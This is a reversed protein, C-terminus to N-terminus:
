SLVPVERRPGGVWDSFTRTLDHRKPLLQAFEDQSLAQELSPIGEPFLSALKGHLRQESTPLGAQAFAKWFPRNTWYDTCAKFITRFWTELSVSGNQCIRQQRNERELWKKYPGFCWLDLPQLYSTMGPPVPLMFLGQLRGERIVGPSLHCSAADFVVIAQYQPFRIRFLQGLLTLLSVMHRASNWSSDERCLMVTSPVVSQLQQELTRSLRRKNCILIQPLYAQVGLVNSVLAVHTICGRADQPRIQVEAHFKRQILGPAAHFSYALATEDINIYVPQKTSSRELWAAHRWFLVAKACVDGVPKAAKMKGLRFAFSRRFRSSWARLGRADTTPVFSASQKRYEEAVQESSPAVGIANMNCVFNRAKRRAIWRQATKYIGQRSGSPDQLSAIDELSTKLYLEEVYRKKDEADAEEMQERAAKASIYELAVAPDGTLVYIALLVFVQRPNLGMNAERQKEARRTRSLSSIKRRLCAVDVRVVVANKALWPDEGIWTNTSIVLAIGYLWVSYCHEQCNSQALMCENLGAQFLQRNSLIMEENGEDFVICKHVQRQFGKLNPQRIGECSLVLTREAGWLRKAYETKGYQSPGVLVLFPFRARTGVTAFLQMWEVVAPVIRSPKWPMWSELLAKVAANRRAQQWAEHHQIEALYNRTGRGRATMLESKAVSDELKHRRWLNFITQLEVTFDRYAVYNTAVHVSGIKPAQCYYHGADLARTLYRGKGLVPQVHPQAGMFTWFGNENSLRHRRNSDTVALHFHVLNEPCRRRLSLEMKLTHRPWELKECAGLAMVKFQQWLWKYFASGSVLHVLVASPTTASMQMLEQAEPNRCGWRGHWTLMYGHVRSGGEHGDAPAPDGDHNGPASSAVIQLDLDSHQRWWALVVETSPFAPKGCAAPAVWHKYWEHRLMESTSSAFYKRLAAKAAKSDSFKAKLDPAAALFRFVWADRADTRDRHGLQDLAEKVSRPTPPRAAKATWDIRQRKRREQAPAAPAPASESVPATVGTDRAPNTELGPESSLPFDEVQAEAVLRALAEIKEAFGARVQASGFM